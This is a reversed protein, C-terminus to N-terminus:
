QCDVRAVNTLTAAVLRTSDAQGGAGSGPLEGRPWLAVACGLVALAIVGVVALM